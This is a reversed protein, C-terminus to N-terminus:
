QSRGVAVVGDRRSRSPEPAEREKVDLVIEGDRADARGQRGPQFSGHLLGEALPDEIAVM